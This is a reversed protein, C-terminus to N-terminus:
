KTPKKALAHIFNEMEESEITLPSDKYLSESDDSLESDDDNKSTKKTQNQIQVRKTNVHVNEEENDSEVFSYESLEIKQPVCKIAIQKPVLNTRINGSKLQIVVGDVEYIIKIENGIRLNDKVNDYSMANSNGYEYFKANPHDYQRFTIYKMNTDDDEKVITNYEASKLSYTDKINKEKLLIITKTDLKEFASIDIDTPILKISGDNSISSIKMFSTQLYLSHINKSNHSNNDNNWMKSVVYKKNPTYKFSDYIVNNINMNSTKTVNNNTVNESNM